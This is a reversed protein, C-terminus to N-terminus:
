KSVSWMTTILSYIVDSVLGNFFKILKSLNMFFNADTVIMLFKKIVTSGKKAFGLQEFKKHLKKM